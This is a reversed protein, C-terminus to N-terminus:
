GRRLVDYLATQGNARATDILGDRVTQVLDREAMVSGEVTLYVTINPAGSAASASALVSPAVSPPAVTDGPMVIQPLQLLDPSNMLDSSMRKMAQLADDANASIGVELGKPLQAGIDEMVRSPSHIDWITRFWDPLQGAWGSISNKLDNWKQEIGQRLGDILWRGADELAGRWEKIKNTISMGIDTALQTVTGFKENMGQWMGALIDRGIEAMKTSPSNIGWWAKIETWM